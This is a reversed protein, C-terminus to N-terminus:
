LVLGLAVTLGYVFMNRATDALVLNLERGQGIRVMKRYTAVHMLLYVLPLIFALAHGQFVFVVGMMFAAIGLVLYLIRGAAPGIKVILTLKGTRRDNDIDRYNNVVLLTDIVLGCAISAFLVQWTLASCQIYYTVCVPVIGFFVLVLLDGMAHSAMFTTYLFCFAVCLIGVAIMQWGGYWVLPLGILCALATTLFIGWRMQKVDIWGMACARPPGLREEDDKGGVFDFYDNVFNADIQMVFAFLVCLLAPVPSFAAGSLEAWAMALGIMVPVSAGTLTKPRAALLWARLSNTRVTTDNMQEIKKGIHPNLHTLVAM